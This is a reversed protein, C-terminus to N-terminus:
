TGRLSPNLADRLGNGILNFSLMLVSIILAPFFLAHPQAFLEKQGEQLLQGLSISGQVGLGLYALAAEGFIAGPIILVTSTVLTGIGNPLIHRYMLKSDKVGLSRAALVYERNRYRLFQMRVLRSIGTWGTITFAFMIALPSQGFRMTFLIFVVFWPVGGIIEIFRQMLIDTTGGLYGSISGYILGITLNFIAAVSSILLSLRVGEWARVYLDYGQSDTGFFHYQDEAIGRLSYQDYEVSITKTTTCVGKRCTEVEEVLTTSKIAEHDMSIFRGSEMIFSGTHTDGLQTLADLDYVVFSDNGELKIEFEIVDGAPSTAIETEMNTILAGMSIESYERTRIGDFIGLKEVVPIKPALYKGGIYPTNSDHSSVMPAFITFLFVITLIIFATLSAKNKAFRISADKLYGIPKGQIEEAYARKQKSYIFKSKDVALKKIENEM